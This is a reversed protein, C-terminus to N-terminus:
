CPLVRRLMCCQSWLEISTPHDNWQVNRAKAVMLHNGHTEFLQSPPNDAMQTNTKAGSYRGIKEGAHALGDRSRTVNGEGHVPWGAELVRVRSCPSYVVTKLLDDLAINAFLRSRIATSSGFSSLRATLSKLNVLISFTTDRRESELPM